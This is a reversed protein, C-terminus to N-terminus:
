RRSLQTRFMSVLRDSNAFGEFVGAKQIETTILIKSQSKIHLNAIIQNKISGIIELCKIALIRNENPSLTNLM